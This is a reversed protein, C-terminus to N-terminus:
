DLDNLSFNMLESQMNMRCSIILKILQIFLLDIQDKALDVRINM